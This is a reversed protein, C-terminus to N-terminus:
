DGPRSPVAPTRGELLSALEAALKEPCDSVLIDPGLGLIRALQGRNNVAGISISLAAERLPRTIREDLIFGEIAVGVFGRESAWKAMTAPAYDSWATLRAAVGLKVAAECAVTFFSLVELRAATGHEIALECAREATRRALEHDAYAKVDLQIPLRTPVSDLVEQLLMPHQDSPQGAQDRIRAERLEAATAEHAWGKSDTSVSLIPDHLAFVEDDASLVVDTELGDVGRELSGELAARSSEPGYAPGLRHAYIPLRDV